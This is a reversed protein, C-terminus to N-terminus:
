NKEVPSPGFAIVHKDVSLIHASSNLAFFGVYPLCQIESYARITAGVGFCLTDNFILGFLSDFFSLNGGPEM